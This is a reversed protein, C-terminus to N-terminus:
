ETSIDVTLPDSFLTEFNDKSVIDTQLFKATKGREINRQTWSSCVVSGNALVKAGTLAPVQALRRYIKTIKEVQLLCHFLFFIQLFKILHSVNVQSSM